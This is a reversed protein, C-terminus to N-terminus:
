QKYLLPKRRTHRIRIIQIESDTVRFSIRYQDITFARFSGDNNVRYKDKPYQSYTSPLKRILSLIEAELQEAYNAFGNEEIFEITAILSKIAAKNWKIKV